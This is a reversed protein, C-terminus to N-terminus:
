RHTIVVLTPCRRLTADMCRNLTGPDLAGFTEDLIVVDSRQLITRALYVRSKEGHSLQWGTEGVFQFLGAPMKDLLEGLGLESCVERAERLDDDTPPWRHGLLLNLALPGSFIHNKYFQPASAVTRRLDIEGISHHDVGKFMVLGQSPKRIGSLLAAMTTKGSGSPGEILMRDGRSVLVNLQEFIPRRHPYAFSVARLELLERGRAASATSFLPQARRPANERIVPAISRWQAALEGLSLVFDVLSTLTASGLTLGGLILALAQQTPSLVLVFFVTPLSLLFYARPVQHLWITLSDYSKAREGYQVLSEDEGEHWSKPTQQILRTRHGLMREVLETTVRVRESQQELSTRFVHPAAVCPVLMFAGFVLITWQPMPAAGLVALTSVVSTLMTLLAVFLVIVYNLFQDSQTSVVMLGGLGYESLEDNELAFAGELLRMRLRSAARLTFKGVYLTTLLQVILATLSLLGWGVLSGFEAHGYLALAGILAWSGTSLVSQVVSLSLLRSTHRSLKLSELTAKTSEGYNKRFSTGQAVVASRTLEELLARELIAVQTSPVAQHVANALRQARAGDRATIESVFAEPSVHVSGGEGLLTLMRANRALVVYVRDNPTVLLSPVGSAAVRRVEATTFSASEAIYGAEIAKGHVWSDPDTVEVPEDCPHDSLHILLSRAAHAFRDAPWSPITM